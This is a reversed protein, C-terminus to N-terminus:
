PFGKGPITNRLSGEIIDASIREAIALVRSNNMRKAKELVSLYQGRGEPDGSLVRERALYLTALTEMAELKQASATRIAKEYHAKGDVINGLRFQALGWTALLCISDITSCKSPDVLDMHRLAEEAKGEHCLSFALNNILGPHGPNTELGERSIREGLGADNLLATATGSALLRPRASFSEDYAWDIASNVLGAWDGQNQARFAQAEYSHAILFLSEDIAGLGTKRGAWVIQALSNETPDELATRFMQNAKKHAGSAMEVTGIASALETLHNPPMNGSSLIQVARKFHRPHKGVVSSVALEAAAVWPDTSALPSSALLELAEDSEGSHVLFRSASRLTFRENPALSLAVRVAEKAPRLQGLLTYLRALELWVFASRPQNLRKSKQTRLLKLIDSRSLPQGASTPVDSIGLHARALARATHTANGTELIFEAASKAQESNGLVQVASLFEVAFPLSKNQLWVAEKEAIFPSPDLSKHRPGTGPSLEGLAISEEFTRWRPLM